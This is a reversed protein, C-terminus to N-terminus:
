SGLKPNSAYLHAADDIADVVRDAIDLSRSQEAVYAWIEHLDSL